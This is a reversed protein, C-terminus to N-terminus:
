CIGYVYHDLFWNGTPEPKQRVRKRYEEVESVTMKDLGEHYGWSIKQMQHWIAYKKGHYVSGSIEHTLYKPKVRGLILVCEEM